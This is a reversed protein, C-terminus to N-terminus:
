NRGEFKPKISKWIFDHVAKINGDLLLFLHDKYKSQIALQAFDKRSFGQKLSDYIKGYESVISAYIEDHQQYLKNATDNVFQHFEDPLNEIIDSVFLGSMLDNWVSRENLGFVIKHLSLYDEQKIKLREDADHFYVVVGEANKRPPMALAESLTKADFRKVVPTPWNNIKDASIYKQTNNEVAGLLVVDSMNGYDVVIRNEPYIIETMVTIGPACLTKFAEFYNDKILKHAFKAQDSDFSGRTAVVLEQGYFCVIGLSGDQKDTVEVPGTLDFNVTSDGYNFFKKYPVGVVYHNDDVILGRCQLTVHDWKRDYQCHDSYNFIRLPLTPHDQVNIYKNLIHQNLLGIDLLKDLKM